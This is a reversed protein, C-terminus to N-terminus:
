AKAPTDLAPRAFPNGCALLPDYFALYRVPESEDSGNIFFDSSLLYTSTFNDLTQELRTRTDTSRLYRTFSPAVHSMFHYKLRNLTPRKALLTAVQDQAFAHLGTDDLTLFPLRKRIGAVIEAEIAPRGLGALGLAAAAAIGLGGLLFQRRKIM